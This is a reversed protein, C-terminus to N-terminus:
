CGGKGGQKGKSNSGGRVLDQLGKERKILGKGWPLDRDDHFTEQDIGKCSDSSRSFRFFPNAIITRIGRVDM